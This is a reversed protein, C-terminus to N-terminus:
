VPKRTQLEEPPFDKHTLAGTPCVSACHGCLICDHQRLIMPVSDSGDAVFLEEPCIKVCLGCKECFTKDIRIKPRILKM